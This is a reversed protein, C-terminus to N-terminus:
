FMTGHNSFSFFPKRALFGRDIRRPMYVVRHAVISMSNDIFQTSQLNESSEMWGVRGVDTRAVKPREFVEFSFQLVAM